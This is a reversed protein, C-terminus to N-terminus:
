GRVSEGVTLRPPHCSVKVLTRFVYLIAAQAISTPANFNTPQQKATGGHKPM